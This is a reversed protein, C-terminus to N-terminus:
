EAFSIGFCLLPPTQRGSQSVGWHRRDDRHDFDSCGVMSFLERSATRVQSIAWRSSIGPFAAFALLMKAGMLGHYLGDGKHAPRAVKLYNYFGSVLLVLIGAMVFKRWRGMIRERLANHESEQLGEAAPMLVFRTFVVGGILVITAGIHAWRSLVDVVTLGNM